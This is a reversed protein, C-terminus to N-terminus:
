SNSPKKYTLRQRLRAVKQPAIYVYEVIARFIEDILEADWMTAEEDSAHVGTNGVKRILDTMDVLTTPLVGKSVLDALKTYLDKGSAQQDQCLYELARRIQGAFANPASHRILWLKM